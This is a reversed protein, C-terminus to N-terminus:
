YFLPNTNASAVVEPINYNEQLAPVDNRSDALKMVKETYPVIIKTPVEYIQQPLFVGFNRGLLYKLSRTGGFNTGAFLLFHAIQM